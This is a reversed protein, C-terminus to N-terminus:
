IGPKIKNMQKAIRAAKLRTDIAKSDCKRAKELEGSEYYYGAKRELELSEIELLEHKRHLSLYLEHDIPNLDPVTEPIAEPPKRKFCEWMIGPLLLIFLLMM